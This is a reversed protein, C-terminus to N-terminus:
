INLEEKLKNVPKFTITKKEDVHISEGTKPNRAQRAARTKVKFTGFKPVTVDRGALFEERISDFVCDVAKEAKIKHVDDGLVSQVKAVLEAKTM